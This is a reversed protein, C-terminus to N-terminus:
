RASEVWLGRIDMETGWSSYTRVVTFDVKIKKLDDKRFIAEWVGINLEKYALAYDEIGVGEDGM